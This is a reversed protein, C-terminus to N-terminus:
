IENVDEHGHRKEREHAKVGDSAVPESPIAMSSGMM